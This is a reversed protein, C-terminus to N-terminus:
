GTRVQVFVPNAMTELAIAILLVLLFPAAARLVMSALLVDIM